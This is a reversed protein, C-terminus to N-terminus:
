LIFESWGHYCYPCSTRLLFQTSSVKNRFQLFYIFLSSSRVHIYLIMTPSLYLWPLAIRREEKRRRPQQYMWRTQSSLHLSWRCNYKSVDPLNIAQTTRQIFLDGVSYNKFRWPLHFPLQFSTSGRWIRRMWWPETTSLPVCRPTTPIVGPVTDQNTEEPTLGWVEIPLWPLIRLHVVTVVHVHHGSYSSLRVCVLKIESNFSIFLCVAAAYMFIYSWPQLYICDHYHKTIMDNRKDTM